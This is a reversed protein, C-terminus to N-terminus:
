YSISVNAIQGSYIATVLKKADKESFGVFMISEKAARRIAGVHKNNRERKELDLRVAEERAKQAHVEAQRAHEAADKARNEAEKQAVVRANEADIKAQAEAAVRVEEALKIAAKSAEAQLKAREEAAIRQREAEQTAAEADAKERELKERQSKAKEEAEIRAAEAAERKMDDEIKLREEEAKRTAEERESTIKEDILLALEHDNNIQKFLKEAEDKAAREAEVKAQEDEWETLPKRAEIKLEDLSDRMFKRNKDVVKAKTKWESVLDKGLDDLKIKLKAVKSALSATKKRGAATSLDHEFGSVIDEAQKIYPDLGEDNTFAALATTEEYTILGKDEM